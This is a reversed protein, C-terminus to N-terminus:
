LEINNLNVVSRFGCLPVVSTSFFGIRASSKEVLKPPRLSRIQRYPKGKSKRSWTQEFVAANENHTGKVKLVANPFGFDFTNKTRLSYHRRDCNTLEVFVNIPPFDNPHLRQRRGPRLGHRAVARLVLDRDAPHVRAVATLSAPVDMYM